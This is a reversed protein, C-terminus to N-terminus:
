PCVVTDMPATSRKWEHGLTDGVSEQYVKVIGNDYMLKYWFVTTAIKIQVLIDNHYSYPAVTVM